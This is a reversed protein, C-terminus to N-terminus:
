EAAIPLERVRKRIRVPAMSREEDDQPAGWMERVTPGQDTREDRLVFNKVEYLWVRRGM